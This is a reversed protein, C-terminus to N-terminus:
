RFIEKGRNSINEGLFYCLNSIDQSGSKLTIGYLECKIFMLIYISSKISYNVVRYIIGWALYTKILLLHKRKQKKRMRLSSNFIEWNFTNLTSYQSKYPLTAYCSNLNWQLYSLKSQLTRYLVFNQNEFLIHAYIFTIEKLM